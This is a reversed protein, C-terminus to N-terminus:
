RQGNPDPAITAIVLNTMHDQEDITFTLEWSPNEAPNVEVRLLKGDTKVSVYNLKLEDELTTFPNMSMDRKQTSQYVYARQVRARVRERDAPPGHFIFHESM